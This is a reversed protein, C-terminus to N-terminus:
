EGDRWPVQLEAAACALRREDCERHREEGEAERLSKSNGGVCWVGATTSHDHIPANARRKGAEFKLIDAADIEGQVTPEAIPLDRSVKPQKHDKLKEKHKKLQSSLKDVKWDMETGILYLVAAPEVIVKVGKDDIVEDFKGIESAWTLTYEMGACGGKRVGIKITMSAGSTPGTAKFVEERSMVIKVPHGSKRSLAIAM